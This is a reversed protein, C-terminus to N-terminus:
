QVLAGARFQPGPRQTRLLFISCMRLSQAHYIASNLGRKNRAQGFENLTTLAIM